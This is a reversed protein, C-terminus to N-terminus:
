QRAAAAENRLLTEAFLRGVLLTGATDYHATNAITAEATDVYECRPDREAAARQAEVIKPMFANKGGGFRTNVAVLAIMEPTALDRRLAAILKGLNDTYLPADNANADSEGQVWALARIKPTLGKESELAELAAKTESILARYCVGAEGAEASDWDKRLGTGSFAAKVVALPREPQKARLARALGIEPGFGGEAQAFNGYQRPQTKAKDPDGLPQAQLHTWGPGTSDHADPPPDGCRWWFLVDRDAPDAPLEKPIANFGVANSQGAVLIVDISGKKEQASVTGALVAFVWAMAPAASSISISLRM